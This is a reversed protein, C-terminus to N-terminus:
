IICAILYTCLFGYTGIFVFNNPWIEYPYTM